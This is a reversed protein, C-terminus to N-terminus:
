KRVWRISGQLRSGRHVVYAGSTARMLKNLLIDGLCQQSGANLFTNMHIGSNFNSYADIVTHTSVSILFAGSAGICQM